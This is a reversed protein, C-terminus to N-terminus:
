CGTERTHIYMHTVPATHTCRGQWWRSCTHIQAVMSVHAPWTSMRLNTGVHIFLALGTISNIGREERRGQWDESAVVVLWMNNIATSHLVNAGGVLYRCTLTALGLAEQEEILLPMYAKEGDVKGTSRQSCSDRREGELLQLCRSKTVHQTALM